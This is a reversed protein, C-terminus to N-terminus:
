KLFLPKKYQASKKDINLLVWIQESKLNILFQFYLIQYIVVKQLEGYKWDETLMKLLM